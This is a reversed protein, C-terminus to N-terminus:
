RSDHFEFAAFGKGVHESADKMLFGGHEENASLLQSRIMAPIPLVLELHERLSRTPPAQRLLSVWVIAKDDEVHHIAFQDLTWYFAGDLLDDQYREIIKRLEALDTPAREIKRETVFNSIDKALWENTMLARFIDTEAFIDSLAIGAPTSSSMAGKGGSRHRVFKGDSNLEITSYGWETSNVSGCLFGSEHQFSVFNGMVALPRYYYTSTCGKTNETKRLETYDSEAFRSFIPVETGETTKIKLDSGDWSIPNDGLKGSWSRVTEITTSEKNPRPSAISNTTANQSSQSITRSCGMSLVLVM